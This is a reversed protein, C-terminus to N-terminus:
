TILPAYQSPVRLSNVVRCAFWHSVYAESREFQMEGEVVWVSLCEVV